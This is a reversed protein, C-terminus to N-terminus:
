GTTPLHCKNCRNVFFIISGWHSIITWDAQGWRDTLYHFRDNLVVDLLIQYIIINYCWMLMTESRTSQDVLLSVMFWARWLQKNSWVVPSFCKFIAVRNINKIKIEWFSEVQYMLWRIVLICPHPIDPLSRAQNCSKRISLFCRPV